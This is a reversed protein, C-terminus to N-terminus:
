RLRASIQCHGHSLQLNAAPSIPYNISISELYILLNQMNAVVKALLRPATALMTSLMYMLRVFSNFFLNYKYLIHWIDVFQCIEFTHQALMLM